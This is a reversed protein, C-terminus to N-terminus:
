PDSAEVVIDGTTLMPTLEPMRLRDQGPKLLFARQAQYPGLKFYGFTHEVTACL